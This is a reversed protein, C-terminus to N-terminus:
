QRIFHQGETDVERSARYPAQSFATKFCLQWTWSRSAGARASIFRREVTAPIWGTKMWGDIKERGNEKRPLAAKGLPTCQSICGGRWGQALPYARGGACLQNWSRAAAGRCSM